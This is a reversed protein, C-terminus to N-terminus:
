KRLLSQGQTTLEGDAEVADIAADDFSFSQVADDPIEVSYGKIAANYRHKIIGGNAETARVHEEIVADPTDFKFTVIVSSSGM